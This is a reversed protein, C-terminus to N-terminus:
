PGSRGSSSWRCCSSRGSGSRRLPRRRCARSIVSEAHRLGGHKRAPEPAQHGQGDSHRQREAQRREVRPRHVVVLRVLRDPEALQELRAGIAVLRGIVVPRREVVQGKGRGPQAPLVVVADSSSRVSRRTGASNPAPAAGAGAGARWPLRATRPPRRPPAAPRRAAASRSRGSRCGPVRSRNKVHPEQHRRTPVREPSARARREPRAGEGAQRERRLLGRDDQDGRRQGTARDRAPPAPGALRPAPPRSVLRPLLTGVSAAPCAHAAAAMARAM